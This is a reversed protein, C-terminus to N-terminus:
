KRILMKRTATFDDATLTYFYVGSAVPEGFANRGDWYVARDRGRYLGAVQHGLSLHRVLRGDVAYIRVSVDAASALEYPIWTEPNFPNPYNALLVTEKPLLLALLRELHAIARQLALSGDSETRLLVLVEQLTEAPLREPLLAIVPAAADTTEGLHEAVLGLDQMDVSGDGNVDLRLNEPADTGLAAMVLRLDAVDTSGDENVDWAPYIVRPPVVPGDILLPPVYLAIDSIQGTLLTQQQSGDLNGRRIENGGGDIWYMKGNSTDLTLGGTVYDPTQFNTANSGDLNAIGIGQFGQTWYMKGGRPDLDLAVDYIKGQAAIVPEVNSGDFDARFVNMETYWKWPDLAVDGQAAIVPEVNSGDFDARFVNMQTWYMKGHRIDLAIDLLSGGNSVRLLAEKDTGDLNARYISEIEANTWYMQDGAVDLAIRGANTWYMKGGAVDLAIRGGSISWIADDVLQEINTGDLNARYIGNTREVWYIKGHSADLAISVVDERNVVGATNAADLDGRQIGGATAWYLQPGEPPPEPMAVGLLLVISPTFGVNRVITEVNSGDLNARRLASQDHDRWYMKGGIGDIRLEQVSRTSVLNEVNSGDLNARRIRNYDHWYMKGSIGDIRLESVFEENVLNEVDSGDLNSRQIVDLVGHHWYIKGAVVNNNLHKPIADVIRRNSGDFDAQWSGGPKVTYYMKGNAVDLTLSHYVIMGSEPSEVITEVNSGDFDSRRIFVSTGDGHGDMWYLKGGAADVSLRTVAMQNAIIDEVNSGDPNARRIKAEGPSEGWGEAWYIKTAADVSDSVPPEVTPVPDLETSVSGLALGWAAIRSGHQRVHLITQANSGNLNASSITDDGADSYYIKDNTLDLVLTPSNLLGEAVVEVNSGNLNARWIGGPGVNDGSRPERASWYVKGGTVDLAIDFLQTLGTVIDEVNSGDLNARRISNSPSVWYIKSNQTDLAMADIGGSATFVKEINSGDLAARWFINYDETWYIQSRDSDLAIHNVPELVTIIDEVNSGDLNARQIKSISAQTDSNWFHDLWYMKGDATNVVLDGPQQLETVVEQVDSGDLNASHIKGDQWNSWYIKTDTMVPLPTEEPNPIPHTIQGIEVEPDIANNTGDSLLADTITLTSAKAAIVEFTLTALTGDGSSSGGIAAAALKVTNQTTVTPVVFAGASLYDANANEVYRLATADFAVTVEYGRINEGGTINLDLRLSEGVAPSAVVSPSFSLIVDGPINIALVTEAHVIQLSSSVGFLICMMAFVIFVRKM